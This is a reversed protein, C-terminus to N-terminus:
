LHRTERPTSAWDDNLGDCYRIPADILEVLDVNELCAVSVKVYGRGLMNPTDVRDYVHVGCHPCYFHRAVPNRGRYDTAAGEARFERTRARAHWFRTKACYTCNCKITGDALDLGAEFRLAGCHCGGEYVRNM